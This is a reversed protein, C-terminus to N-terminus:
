VRREESRVGRRPIPRSADPLFKKRYEAIGLGLSGVPKQRRIQRPIKRYNVIRQGMGKEGDHAVGSCGPVRAAAAIEKPGARSCASMSSNSLGSDTGILSFVNWLIWCDRRLTYSSEPTGLNTRRRM